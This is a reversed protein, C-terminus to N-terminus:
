VARKRSSRAAHGVTPRVFMEFSERSAMSHLLQRRRKSGMAREFLRKRQEGLYEIWPEYEQGFQHELDHRLRQALAPSKGDTSIAIQLAGRRVVAPYYFDCHLPNDVVNCLVGRRRAECYVQEDLERSSTAVVTLFVGDLDKPEFGRPQWRVKQARAWASVGDTAWPAVVLVEGGAAMLGAIKSEGVRGAGVVLCRRGALKLFM